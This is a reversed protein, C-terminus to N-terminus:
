WRAYNESRPCIVRDQSNNNSRSTTSARSTSTQPTTSTSSAHIISIRHSVWGRRLPRTLMHHPTTRNYYNCHLSFHSNLPRHLPAPIRFASASVALVLFLSILSRFWTREATNNCLWYLLYVIIQLLPTIPTKYEMQSHCCLTLLYWFNHHGAVISVYQDAFLTTKPIKM